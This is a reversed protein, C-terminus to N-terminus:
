AHGPHLELWRLLDAFEKSMTTDSQRFVEQGDEEELKITYSMADRARGPGVNEVMRCSKLAEVLVALEESDKVTLTSSDVVHPPRQIGAAFGGHKTLIVKM